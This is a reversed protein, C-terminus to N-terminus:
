YCLSLHCYPMAIGIRPFVEKFSCVFLILNWLNHPYSIYSLSVINKRPHPRLKTKDNNTLDDYVPYNPNFYLPPMLREEPSHLADRRVMLAMDVIQAVCEFALLSLVELAMAPPQPWNHKGNSDNNEGSSNEANM